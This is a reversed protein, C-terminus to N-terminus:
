VRLLEMIEHVDGVQEINWLVRLLRERQSASLLDQTLSNFKQEIEADTLPNKYHGHHYQVMESLTQGSKTIVTVRNASVAPFLNNCEESEEVKIKQILNLLDPHHLYEDSFHRVEVPGNIFLAVGVVYPISHDATERTRPRWKEPEEGMVIKGVKFTGIRVSAIEDGSSMKSRVKLAADVATQGHQGFPYRKISVNMIRFPKDRGGLEELEFPGSIAHFFGHRGEFIPRPGTMGEKALLSAFVANKAANAFACCKWMSLEGARTQLLCINPAIALNIAEVMQEQSLGLIKSAGVVSSIVGTVAHDFDTLNLDIQDSVRCFAEYSLVSATVLEKGSAHIADGCALVPAFNDSPHGRSKSVYGDNFDLYRIMVGNAFTALEPSSQDNTGLITAPLLKEKVRGAMKRAIEAPESTYGAIGCGLADILLGKTKHVVEPPLDEYNISSTYSAIKSTIKDM